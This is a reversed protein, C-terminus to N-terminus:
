DDPDDTVPRENYTDAREQGTLAAISDM